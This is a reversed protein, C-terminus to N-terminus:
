TFNWRPWGWHPHWISTPYIWIAVKSWHRAIDWFHNLIPVDSPALFKPLYREQVSHVAWPFSKSNIRIHYFQFSLM